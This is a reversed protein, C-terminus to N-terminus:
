IDLKRDNCYILTMNHLQTAILMSVQEVAGAINKGIMCQSMKEDSIKM